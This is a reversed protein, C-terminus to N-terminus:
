RSAQLGQVNRQACSARERRRRQSPASCRIAAAFNMAASTDGCSFAHRDFNAVLQGRALEGLEDFDLRGTARHPRVREVDLIQRTALLDRDESEGTCEGRRARRLVHRAVQLVDVLQFRLADAIHDAHGDVIREHHAGPRAVLLGAALDAHHAVAAGVVRLREAEFEIQGRLAEAQAALAKRHQDVVAHDLKEVDLRGPLYSTESASVNNFCIPQRTARRPGRM